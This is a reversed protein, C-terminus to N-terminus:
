CSAAFVVGEERCFAVSSDASALSSMIPYCSRNWVSVPFLGHYAGSFGYGVRIEGSLRPLSIGRFGLVHGPVPLDLHHRRMGSQTLFSLSASAVPSPALYPSTPQHRFLVPLQFRAWGKRSHKLYLPVYQLMEWAVVLCASSSNNTIRLM